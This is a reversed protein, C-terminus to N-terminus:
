NNVSGTDNTNNNIITPQTEVSPKFNRAHKLQTPDKAINNLDFSKYIHLASEQDLFQADLPLSPTGQELMSKVSTDVYPISPFLINYSEHIFM